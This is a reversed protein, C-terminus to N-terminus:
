DFVAAQDAPNRGTLDRYLLAMPAYAIVGSVTGVVVRALDPVLHEPKLAYRFLELWFPGYGIKAEVGGQRLLEGLKSLIWEGGGYALLFLLSCALALAYRGQTLRWSEGVALRQEFASIAPFLSFRALLVATLVSAVITTDLKLAPMASRSVLTVIQVVVLMAVVSIFVMGWVLTLRAEDGGLRMWRGNARDPDAVARFVAASLVAMALCLTLMGFTGLGFLLWGRMAEPAVWSWPGKVGDYVASVLTGLVSIPLLCLGWGLVTLPERRLLPFGALMLRGLATPKM